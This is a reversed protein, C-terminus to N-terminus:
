SNYIFKWPQAMELEYALEILRKDEGFPAAFHIGLPLGNNSKALPLSIGPSGTINQLGTFPTFEVARRSIEDYALDISFYGIETVTRALAPTMLIDYNKFNSEFLAGTRKLSKLHQPMLFFNRKFHEGLGHTFPELLAKNIKANFLFRGFNKLLFAMFGYYSLFPIIM